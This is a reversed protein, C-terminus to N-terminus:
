CPNLLSRRSWRLLSLRSRGSNWIERRLDLERFRRFYTSTSAFASANLRQRSRISTCTLWFDIYYNGKQALETKRTKGNRWTATGPAPLHRARWGVRASSWLSRTSLSRRPSPLRPRRCPKGTLVIFPIALFNRVACEVKWSGPCHMTIIFIILRGLREWDPSNIVLGIESIPLYVMIFCLFLFGELEAMRRFSSAVELFRYLYRSYFKGSNGNTVNTHGAVQSQNERWTPLTLSRATCFSSFFLTGTTWASERRRRCVGDTTGVKYFM